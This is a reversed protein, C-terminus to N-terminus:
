HFMVAKHRGSGLFKIDFHFIDHYSVGTQIQRRLFGLCRCSGKRSLPRRSLSHFLNFFCYNQVLFYIVRCTCYVEEAYKHGIESEICRSRTINQALIRGTSFRVFVSTCDVFSVNFRFWCSGM